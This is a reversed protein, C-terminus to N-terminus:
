IAMSSSSSLYKAQAVACFPEILTTWSVVTNLSLDDYDLWVVGAGFGM